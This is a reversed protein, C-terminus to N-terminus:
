AEADEDEEEDPVPWWGICPLEVPEGLNPYFFAKEWSDYWVLEDLSEGEGFDFRAAYRGSKRPLGEQWAPEPVGAGGHSGKAPSSDACGVSPYDKRERMANIAIAALMDYVETWNRAILRIGRAVSSLELKGACADYMRESSGGGSNHLARQLGQINDKRSLGMEPVRRAFSEAFGELLSFFDEDEKRMRAAYEEYTETRRLDPAFREMSSEMNRQMRKRDEQEKELRDMVAAVEEAPLKLLYHLMEDATEQVEPSRRAIEYACSENLRGDEWAPRLTEGQLNDRIVKLRALKSKSMKCAAAVHDRMRGPFEMGQEKLKYLLEEVREAQRALEASTMTRTDSNAFILRLEQLEPSSAAAEVICPVQRLDGRGEEVLKRIAATRRHGSVIMYDDDVKRVLVPQQLGLLEINGALEEIGDLGYFNKPDSCLRDVDIYEIQKKGVGTDMESVQALMDALSFGM